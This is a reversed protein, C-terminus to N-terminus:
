FLAVGLKPSTVGFINMGLNARTLASVLYSGSLADAGRIIPGINTGEKLHNCELGLIRLDSERAAIRITKFYRLISAELLFPMGYPLIRLKRIFDIIRKDAIKMGSPICHIPDKRYYGNTKPFREIIYIDEEQARIEYNNNGLNILEFDPHNVVLACNKKGRFRKPVFLSITAYRGDEDIFKFVVKEEFPKGPKEYIILTGTWVGVNPYMRDPLTHGINETLIKDHIDNPVILKGEKRALALIEFFTLETHFEITQLAREPTMSRLMERRARLRELETGQVDVQRIERKPEPKYKGFIDSARLAHRVAWSEVGIALKRM